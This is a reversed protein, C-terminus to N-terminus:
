KFTISTEASFRKYDTFDIEYKVRQLGTSFALTDEAVTKVPFWFEGDIPEFTTSFRPFLNGDKVRHHQPVPLGSVQVIQLAEKDVWIQGDLLRQGELVQRPRIRYVWCARGAVEDDGLLKTEYFWLTDETVVFPQVDRLDRFDEDTLRMRDLRDIPGKVFAETREGDPTFTVDRIELYDGRQTGGKGLEIFHFRQRYTYRGREQEFLTGNAALRKLLGKPPTEEALAATGCLLIAALLYASRKRASRGNQIESPM